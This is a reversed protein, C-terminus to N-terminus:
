AMRRWIETAPRAWTEGVDYAHIANEDADWEAEVVAPVEMLLGFKDPEITAEPKSTWVEFAGKVPRVEAPFGDKTLKGARAQAILESGYTKDLHLVHDEM